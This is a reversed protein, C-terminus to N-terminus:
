SAELDQDDPTQIDLGGPTQITEGSISVLEFDTSTDRWFLREARYPEGISMKQMFFGNLKQRLTGSFGLATLKDNVLDYLTGNTMSSKTQFYAYLRDYLTGGYGKAEFWSLMVSPTERFHHTAM